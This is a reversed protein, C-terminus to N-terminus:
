TLCAMLEMFRIRCSFFPFSITTVEDSQGAGRGRTGADGRASGAVVAMERARCGGGGRVMGV